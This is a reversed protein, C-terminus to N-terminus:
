LSCHHDVIPNEVIIVGHETWLGFSVMVWGCCFCMLSGMVKVKISPEHRRGSGPSAPSGPGRLGDFPEGDSVNVPEYGSM